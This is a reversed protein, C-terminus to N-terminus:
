FINKSYLFKPSTLKDVKDRMIQEKPMIYLFLKAKDLTVTINEKYNESRCKPRYDVTLKTQYITHLLHGGENKEMHIDLQRLGMKKEPKGIRDANLQRPM